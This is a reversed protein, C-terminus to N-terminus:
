IARIETEQLESTKAQKAGDITVIEHCDLTEIGQSSSHLLNLKPNPPNNFAGHRPPAGVTAPNGQLIRASAICTKTPSQPALTM